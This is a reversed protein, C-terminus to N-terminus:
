CGVGPPRRMLILGCVNTASASTAGRTNCIRTAQRLRLRVRLADMRSQLCNPRHRCGIPPLASILLRAMHIHTHKHAICSRSSSDVTNPVLPNPRELVMPIRRRHRARTISARRPHSNPLPTVLPRAAAFTRHPRPVRMPIGVRERHIVRRSIRHCSWLASAPTSGTSTRRAPRM